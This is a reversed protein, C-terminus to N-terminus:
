LNYLKDLIIENLELKYIKGLLPNYLIINKKNSILLKILYIEINKYEDNFIIDFITDNNYLDVYCYAKMNHNYCLSTQTTDKFLNLFEYCNSINNYNTIPNINIIDFNLNLESLKKKKNKMLKDITKYTKIIYSELRHILFPQYICHPILKYKYFEDYKFINSEYYKKSVTNFIVENNDSNIVLDIYNDDMYSIYIYKIIHGNRELYKKFHKVDDNVIKTPLDSNQDISIFNTNDFNVSILLLPNNQNLSIKSVKYILNINIQNIKFPIYGIKKNDLTYAGIANVNIRNNPNPILKIKDGLKLTKVNDVYTFIGDIQIDLM